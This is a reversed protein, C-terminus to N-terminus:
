FLCRAAAGLWDSKSLRVNEALPDKNRLTHLLTEALLIVLKAQKRFKKTKIQQPLPRAKTLLDAAEQLLIHKINTLAACSAPRLVCDPQLDHQALLDIPVYSRQMDRYDKQMDQIHNLIQLANSLGDAMPIYAANNEHHIALLFRGVPAASWRCYTHLDHLTHVPKGIIDWTFATLLDTACYAPIHKTQMHQGLAYGITYAACADPAPLTNTASVIGHLLGSQMRQLADLRAPIPSTQDAIDDAARAFAYYALTIDKLAAPLFWGAVPFNEQKRKSLINDIDAILPSTGSM